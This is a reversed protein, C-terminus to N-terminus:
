FLVVGCVRDSLGMWVGKDLDKCNIVENFVGLKATTDLKALQGRQAECELKADHWTTYGDFYKFCERAYPHWDNEYDCLDVM